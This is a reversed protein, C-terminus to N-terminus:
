VHTELSAGKGERGREAQSTQKEPAGAGWSIFQHAVQFFHHMVNKRPSPYHELPIYKWLQFQDDWLQKSTFLYQRWKLPPPLQPEPLFKSALSDSQHICHHSLGIKPSKIVNLQTM